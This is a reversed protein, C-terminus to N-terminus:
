KKSKVTSKKVTKKNTVSKKKKDDGDQKTEIEEEEKREQAKETSDDKMPEGIERYITGLVGNIFKGSSEGGFTKALEIAENIAVKPPVEDRNAFLLEFIGIRLVNRDIIAIQDLPWEPAGKTIINDIKKLRSVIGEVIQWVFSNDEIGPAFKTVNNEVIPKLIPDKEAEKIDYLDEMSKSNRFNNFDWEYLSQLVISRSLHRNAM